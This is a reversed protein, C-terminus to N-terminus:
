RQVKGSAIAMMLQKHVDLEAMKAVLKRADDLKTVRLENIRDSDRALKELLGGIPFWINRSDPKVGNAIRELIGVLFDHNRLAECKKCATSSKTTKRCSHARLYFRDGEFRYGWPLQYAAHVGFPYSLHPNQGAPFDIQIGPCQRSAPIDTNGDVR